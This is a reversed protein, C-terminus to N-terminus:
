IRAHQAVEVLGAERLIRTAPDQLALNVGVDRGGWGSKTQLIQAAEPRSPLYSMAM